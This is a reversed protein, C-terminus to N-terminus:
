KRVSSLTYRCAICLPKSPRLLSTRHFTSVISFVTYGQGNDHVAEDIVDHEVIVKEQSADRLLQLGEEVRGLYILSLALNFLVECSFLKFNLGLQEYNRDFYILLYSNLRRDNHWVLFGCISIAESIHRRRKLIKGQSTSVIAFFTPYVANFTLSPLINTWSSLPGLSTLLPNMIASPPM